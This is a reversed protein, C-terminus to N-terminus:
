LKRCNGDRQHLIKTCFYKRNIEIESWNSNLNIELKFALLFYVFTLLHIFYLLVDQVITWDNIFRIFHFIRPKAISAKGSLDTEGRNSFIQDYQIWVRIRHVYSWCNRIQKTVEVSSSRMHEAVAECLPLAVFWSRSLQMSTEYSRGSIQPTEFYNCIPEASVGIKIEAM